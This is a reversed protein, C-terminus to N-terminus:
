SPVTTTTTTTSTTFSSCPSCATPDYLNSPTATKTWARVNTGDSVYYTGDALSPIETSNLTTYDCYAAGGTFSVSTLLQGGLESCADLEGSSLYLSPAATTTSTTSTTTPAATTTSTTTTTTQGSDCLTLDGYINVDDVTYLYTDGGITETCFFGFGLANLAALLGTLNAEYSLNYTIGNIILQGTGCSLVQTTIDWSYKTTANISAPNQQFLPLNYGCDSLNSITFQVLERKTAM